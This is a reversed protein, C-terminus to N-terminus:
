RHGWAIPEVAVLQEAGDRLAAHRAHPHRPEAALVAELLEDRDLHDKRLERLVRAELPHEEVLRADRRLDLVRVHSLDHIEALLVVDEVERHLPDVAVRQGLDHARHLPLPQRQRGAHRQPDERVRAATEVGGVLEAAFVALGEADDVAIDRRLVDEHAHAADRLEDVESDGLRAVADGLVRAAARHLAFHVVHRGLLGRAGDDIPTRVDPGDAV